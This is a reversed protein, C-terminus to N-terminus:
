PMMRTTSLVNPNSGVDIIETHTCWYDRHAYMLLRQTHVDIIQTHVDIIETHTYRNWASCVRRAKNFCAHTRVKTYCQEVEQCLCMYAVSLIQRLEISPGAKCEERHAVVNVHVSLYWLRSIWCIAPLDLRASKGTLLSMWMFLCIVYGASEVFRRFTWGQV